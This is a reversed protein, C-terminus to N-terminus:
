IRPRRYGRPDDRGLHRNSGPPRDLGLHLQLAPALRHYRSTYGFQGLWRPPTDFIIQLLAGEAPIKGTLDFTHPVFSGNFAGVEQANVLVWGRDDLGLCTLRLRAGTRAWDAPIRAQYIWHRNEVWECQRYQYGHNWDPIVGAARLATQVSGPVQAPVPPVEAGQYTHIDALMPFRWQYPMTGALSWDLSSLPYQTKM